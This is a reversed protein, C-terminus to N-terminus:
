HSNFLIRFILESQNKHLSILSFRLFITFRLLIEFGERLFLRNFDDGLMFYPFNGVLDRYCPANISGCKDSNVWKTLVFGVCNKRKENLISRTGMKSSFNINKRTKGGNFHVMFGLTRSWICRCSVLSQATRSIMRVEKLDNAIFLCYFM